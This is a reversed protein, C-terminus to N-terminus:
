KRPLLICDYRVAKGSVSYGPKRGALWPGKLPRKILIKRPGAAIAANLLTEEEMCPSELRHILQFKKKVLASKQREPFMPDLLVLDPICGISDESRHMAEISDGVHLEMRSVPERLEPVERAREMADLLLAAIVPNYEFLHVRFGAAALLLSDAGLGATADIAVAPCEIGKMRGAKVLFEQNLNSPRLRPIMHNFDGRVSLKGQVLSLGGDDAQLHLREPSLEAADTVVPLGLMEAWREGAAAYEKSPIFLTLNM